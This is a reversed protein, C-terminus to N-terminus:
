DTYNHGTWRELIIQQYKATILGSPLIINEDKLWRRFKKVSVGLETAMQQRTKAKIYM